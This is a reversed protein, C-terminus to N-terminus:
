PRLRSWDRPVTAFTELASRGKWTQKAHYEGFARYDSCMHMVVAICRRTKGPMHEQSHLVIRCDRPIRCEHFSTHSEALHTGLRRLSILWAGLARSTEHSTVNGSKAEQSQPQRLSGLPVLEPLVFAPTVESPVPSDVVDHLSSGPHHM